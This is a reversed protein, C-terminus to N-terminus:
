LAKDYKNAESIYVPWMKATAAEHSTDGKDDINAGKEVADAMNDRNLAGPLKALAEHSRPTRALNRKDLVNVFALRQNFASLQINTRIHLAFLRTNLSPLHVPRFCPLSLSAVLRLVFFSFLPEIALPLLARGECWPPARLRLFAWRTRRPSGLGAKPYAVAFEAIFAHGPPTSTGLLLLPATPPPSISRACEDPPHRNPMYTRSAVFCRTPEHCKSARLATHLRSRTYSHVSVHVGSGYGTDGCACWMRWGGGVSDIPQSPLVPMPPNRRCRRVRGPIGPVGTGYAVVERMVVSVFRGRRVFFIVPTSEIASSALWSCRRGRANGFKFRHPSTAGGKKGTCPHPSPADVFSRLRRVIAPCHRSNAAPASGPAAPTFSGPRGPRLALTNDKRPHPPLATSTGFPLPATLAFIGIRRSCLVARLGCGSPAYVDRPLQAVEVVFSCTCLESM